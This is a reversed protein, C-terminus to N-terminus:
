PLCRPQYECMGCPTNHAMRGRRPFREEAIDRDTWIVKRAYEALDEGTRVPMLRLPEIRPKTKQTLMEIFGLYRVSLVNLSNGHREVLIQYATLQDSWWTEPQASAPTKVDLVAIEGNATIAVIDPQGSLSIGPAIETRLRREVLPGHLDRAPTLGTNDWWAPFQGCLAMGVEEMSSPDWTSGFEVPEAELGERWAASFAAPLDGASVKGLLYGSAAAHIATGFLLNAPQSERVAKERFRFWYARPCDEYLLISSPRYVRDAKGATVREPAAADEEFLVGM